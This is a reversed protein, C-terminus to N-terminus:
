GLYQDATGLLSSSDRDSILQGMCHPFTGLVSLGESHNVTM